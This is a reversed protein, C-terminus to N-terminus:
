YNWMYVKLKMLIPKTDKEKPKLNDINNKNFRIKTMTQIRITVIPNLMKHNPIIDESNPDFEM